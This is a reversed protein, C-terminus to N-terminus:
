QIKLLLQRIKTMINCCYILKNKIEGYFLEEVKYTLKQIQTQLFSDCKFICYTNGFHLAALIDYKQLSVWFNADGQNGWCFPHVIWGFKLGVNSSQLYLRNVCIAIWWDSIDQLINVNKSWPATSRSDGFYFHSYLYTWYIEHWDRNSKSIEQAFTDFVSLLCHFAWKLQNLWFLVEFSQQQPVVNIAPGSLISHKTNDILKVVHNSWGPDLGYYITERKLKHCNLVACFILRKFTWSFSASYGM